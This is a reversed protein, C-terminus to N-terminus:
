GLIINCIRDVDEASLDAFMPLCLVHDAAHQAVPTASVDFGPRGRYCDYTLQLFTM